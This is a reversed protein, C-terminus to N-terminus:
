IIMTIVKGVIVIFAAIRALDFIIFRDAVKFEEDLLSKVSQYSREKLDEIASKNPLDPNPYLPKGIFVFYRPKGTLWRQKSKCSKVLRVAMPLIAKNEKIAFYFAGNKFERLGRFNKLLIGEPFFHIINNQKLDNQITKIFNKSSSLTDPIPVVGLMKLLNGILPLRFNALSSVFTVYKPFLAVAAMCSDMNHIHNMISIGGKDELLAINKRGEVKVGYLFFLLVYVIVVLIKRIQRTFFWRTKGKFKPEAQKKKERKFGAFNTSQTKDRGSPDDTKPYGDQKQKEMADRYLKVLDQITSEVRMGDAKEAYKKSYSAKEEPNEIWYEIKEALSSADGAAFLSNETLSFSNTASLESDSIVPVLGCAMAELCSIGEIEADSAHIYLDARNMLAVLDKQSYFDFIPKNLLDKGREELNEQEPGQGAFVLQIKDKYKSQKVADILLDQRKEGSLRGVSLILFKDEYQKDREVPVPKFNNSVGNSFVRIENKYGHAVLQDAIMRSPAHIYNFKSYFCKYFESYLRDNIKKNKGLGISYTINQPQLHFSSVTATGMQRAIKEGEICFPTPLHFHIIDAGNFAEYYKSHDPKAFKFGQADVLYQFFPLSFEDAAIKDAAPEGTSLVKVEHGLDRLLKVNRKTATAVGNNLQDYLDLVHIIKLSIV